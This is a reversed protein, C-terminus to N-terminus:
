SSRPPEPPVAGDEAPVPGSLLLVWSLVEVEVGPIIRSYLRRYVEEFAAMLEAADNDRYARAPVPVAIEHGQGRYRMFASRPGASRSWPAAVRTRAAKSRMSGPPM